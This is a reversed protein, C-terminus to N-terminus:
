SKAKILKGVEKLTEDVLPTEENLSHQSSDFTSYFLVSFLM